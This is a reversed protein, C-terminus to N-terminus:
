KPRRKNVPVINPNLVDPKLKLWGKAAGWDGTKGILTNWIEYNRYNEPGLIKKQDPPPMRDLEKQIVSWSQKGGGGLSPEFYDIAAKEINKFQRRPKKLWNSAVRELNKVSGSIIEEQVPSMSGYKQMQSLGEALNIDLSKRAEKIFDASSKRKPKPLDLEVNHLKKAINKLEKVAKESLNTKSLGAGFPPPIKAAGRVGTIWKRSKEFVEPINEKISKEMGELMSEGTAYKWLPKASKGIMKAMGVPPLFDGEAIAKTIDYPETIQQGFINTGYDPARISHQPPQSLAEMLLNRHAQAKNKQQPEGVFSTSAISGDENYNKRIWRQPNDPNGQEGMLQAQGGQQYGKFFKKLYKKSLGKPFLFIDGVEKSSPSDFSTQIAENKIISKPVDFELIKKGGMSIAEPRSTTTWLGRLNKEYPLNKLYTKDPGKDGLKKWFDTNENLREFQEKKLPAGGVYKGEKVMQGKFWKPVGRFLKVGAGVPLADEPMPTRHESISYQPKQALGSLPDRNMEDELLLRDISSHATNDAAASQLYGLLPPRPM